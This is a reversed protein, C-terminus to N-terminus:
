AARPEAIAKAEKADGGPQRLGLEGAIAERLLVDALDLAALRARGGLRHLPERLPEVDVGGEERAADGGVLAAADLRHERAGLRQRLAVAVLLRDLGELLCAGRDGRRVRDLEVDAGARALGPRPHLLAVDPRGDLQQVAGAGDGLARDERVDVAGLDDEPEADAAVLERADRGRDRQEVLCERERLARVHGGVPEAGVDVVPAGAAVAALAVELGRALVDLVRELEGLADVVAALHGVRVELRREDGLAGPM